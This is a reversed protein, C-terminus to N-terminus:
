IVELAYTRSDRAGNDKVATVTFERMAGVPVNWREYDIGHNGMMLYPAHQERRFTAGRTGFGWESFDVFRIRDQDKEKIDARLTFGDPYMESRVQIMGGPRQQQPPVFTAKLTRTDVIALGSIISPYPPPSPTPPPTSRPGQESSTTSTDVDDEEPSADVEDEAEASQEAADDEPTQFPSIEAEGNNLYQLPKGWIEPRGACPERGNECATPINYGQAANCRGDKAPNGKFPATFPANSFPAGGRIKVFACSSYTGFFSKREWNLGGYWTMRLVYVGDKYNLPIEVDAFASENGEDTGCEGFPAAKPDPQGEGHGTVANPPLPSSDSRDGCNYIRKPDRFCTSLVQQDQFAKPYGQQEKRVFSFTVYGGKHNNTQYRPRLIQGRGLTPM